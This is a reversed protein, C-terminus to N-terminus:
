VPLAEAGTRSAPAPVNRDGIRGYKSWVPQPASGDDVKASAEEEKAGKAEKEQYGNKTEAYQKKKKKFYTCISQTSFASQRFCRCWWTATL